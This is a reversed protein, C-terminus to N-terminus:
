AIRSKNQDSGSTATGSKLRNAIRVVEPRDLVPQFRPDSEILRISFDKEKYGQEICAVAADYDGLALHLFALATPPIWARGRFGEIRDLMQRAEAERGLKAFACGLGSLVWPRAGGRSQADELVEISEQYRGSLFYAKSLYMHTETFDPDIELGQRGEAIAQDLKAIACLVGCAGSHIVPSLPDLAVATTIAAEAEAWRGSPVLVNVAYWFYALAYSPNLEIARKFEREALATLSWDYAIMAAGMSTHAEALTDDLDLARRVAAQAKDCGEAFPIFRFFALVLYLDALGCWAAAYDPDIEVAKLFAAMALQIGSAGARNLRNLHYRGLTYREHAERAPIHRPISGQTSHVSAVETTEAIARAIRDQIAFIDSLDGDYRNSWRICGSAVEVVQATVRIRQGSRQVSGTLVVTAGLTRGAEAADTGSRGPFRFSSAHGLVRVKRGRAVLNLVEETLGETFAVSSEDEQRCRFPLVALVEVGALASDRSAGLASAAPGGAGLSDLAERMTAYRAEREVTLAKRIVEAVAPPVEARRHDISSPTENFIRYFMAEMDPAQFPNQGALM